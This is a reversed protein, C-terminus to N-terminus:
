CKPYLPYKIHPFCELNEGVDLREGQAREKPLSLLLYLRKKKNFLQNTHFYLKSHYENSIWILCIIALDREFNTFIMPIKCMLCIKEKKNREKKQEKKEDGCYCYYWGNYSIHSSTNLLLLLLILDHNSNVPKRILNRKTWTRINKVNWIKLVEEM